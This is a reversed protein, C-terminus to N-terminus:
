VAIVEAADRNHSVAFPHLPSRDKSLGQRRGLQSPEIGFLDSLCRNPSASTVLARYRRCISCELTSDPVAGSGLTMFIFHFLLPGMCHIPRDAGQASVHKLVYRRHIDDRRDHHKKTKTM